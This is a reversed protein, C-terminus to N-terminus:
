SGCFWTVSVSKIFGEMLETVCTTLKQNWVKATNQNIYEKKQTIRRAFWGFSLICCTAPQDYATVPNRLWFFIMKTQM